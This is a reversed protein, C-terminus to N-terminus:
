DSAPPQLIKLTILDDFAIKLDEVALYRYIESRETVRGSLHLNEGEHFYTVAVLTGKEAKILAENIREKEEESLLLKEHLGMERRKAALALSLGTLADFPAFQKARQARPMPTRTKYDM